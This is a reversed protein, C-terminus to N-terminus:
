QTAETPASKARTLVPEAELSIQPSRAPPRQLCEVIERRARQYEPVLSLKTRGRPHPLAISIPRALTAAPGRTLPHVRDALLIAEDIDNTVMLITARTERSLRALEDQLSRRTLADLASLPEDLLLMRPEMALARALAVRQRMGGSLERPRKTKAASLKVLDIFREAKAVAQRHDLLPASAEVALLVNGLVSLWPLLSYNQFVVARETSPGAIREGAFRIEGRDPVTLGAMMSVLTTKGAGSCGVIASFEGEAIELEIAAVVPAALREYGKAVGHLELLPRM